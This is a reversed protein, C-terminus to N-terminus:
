DGDNETMRSILRSSEALAATRFEGLHEAAQKFTKIFEERDGASISKLLKDSVEQLVKLVSETQPNHLAIDAYLEPDQAMIRGVMDMRLRYVPSSFRLSEDINVGLKALAAATTIASFHTLGQIVAMLRDHEDATTTTVQAGREQLFQLFHDTLAKERSRTAIVTQGKISGVEPAFMPHLGLVECSSKLMCNVPAAKLSTLDILIQDTRTLPIVDEIVRCTDAIPVAFILADCSSVAERHSPAHERDSVVVDRCAGLLLDAFFRGMRGKGGIIGIKLDKLAARM